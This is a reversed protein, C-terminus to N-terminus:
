FIGMDICPVVPFVPIKQSPVGKDTPHRPSLPTKQSRLGRKGSKQPNQGSYPAFPNRLLIAGATSRGNQQESPQERFPNGYCGFRLSINSFGRGVSDWFGGLLLFSIGM